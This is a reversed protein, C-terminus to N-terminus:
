DGFIWNGAEDIYKRIIALHIDGSMKSVENKWGNANKIEKIVRNRGKEANALCEVSNESNKAISSNLFYASIGTLVADRSILSLSIFEQSAAKFDSTLLQSFGYFWRVWQRDKKKIRGKDIHDKFFDAAETHNGGLIRAAGFILVNKEIVLPKVVAAKNELTLVSAFDSIVLYSSALLQVYRTKYKGKIFVKQELYYALAPWDERELLSFLRYNYFFFIGMFGLLLVMFLLLPVTLFRFNLEDPVIGNQVEENLVPKSLLLPVFVAFLIVLLIVISFVLILNKFKLPYV